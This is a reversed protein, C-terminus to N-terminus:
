QKLTGTVRNVADSSGGVFFEFEGPEAKFSM